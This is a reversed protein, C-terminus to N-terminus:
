EVGGFGGVDVGDVGVGVGGGPVITSYAIGDALELGLAIAAPGSPLIHNRSSAVFAFLIAFIVSFPVIVSYGSGVTFANGLASTLPGSPFRQYSSSLLLRPFTVVDPATVSYVIDTLEIASATPGSWM